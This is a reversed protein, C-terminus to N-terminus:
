RALYREIAAIVQPLDNTVTTWVTAIRVDNYGHFLRNRMGTMDSWRLALVGRTEASVNGAAEGIVGIRYIVADQKETDLFFQEQTVNAVYSVALRAADLM